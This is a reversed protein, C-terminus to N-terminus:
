KKGEPYSKTDDRLAEMRKIHALYKPLQELPVGCFGWLELLETDTM